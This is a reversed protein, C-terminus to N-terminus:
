INIRVSGMSHHDTYVYPGCLLHFISVPTSRLSFGPEISNILGRLLNRRLFNVAEGSKLVEGAKM